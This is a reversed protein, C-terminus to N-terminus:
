ARALAELFPVVEAHSDYPIVVVRYDKRLREKRDVEAQPDPLRQLLVFHLGTAGRLQEANDALILDLDHPDSMGYGVFLFTRDILLYGLVSQYAADAHAERYEDFTLVVSDADEATGHVKFLVPRKTRIDALAAAARKGTYMDRAPPPEAAELLKDYNTTIVTPAQLAMIARQAAGPAADIPRFISTLAAAYDAGLKDKVQDLQRLMEQLPMARARERTPDTPDPELFRARLTERDRDDQWVWYRDCEALLRGPLDRWSPFGGTVDPGLSLGAGVFPVLLAARKAAVLPQPLSPHTASPMPVGPTTPTPLMPAAPATGATKLVDPLVPPGYQPRLVNTPLGTVAPPLIPFNLAPNQEGVTAVRHDWERLLTARLVARDRAVPQGLYISAYRVGDDLRGVQLAVLSFLWALSERQALRWAHPYSDLAAQALAPQRAGLASLAEHLALHLYRPADRRGAAAARAAAEWQGRRELQLVEGLRAQPRLDASTRVRGVCETLLADSADAAAIYQAEEILRVRSRSREVEYGEWLRRIAAEPRGADGLAGGLIQYVSFISKGPDVRKVAEEAAAIAADIGDVKRVLQVWLTWVNGSDFGEAARRVHPVARPLDEDRGRDRLLKALHYEAAPPGPKALWLSLLHIRADREATTAPDATALHYQSKLSASAASMLQELLKPDGAASLHYLAEEFRAAHGVTLQGGLLPRAYWAGARRHAEAWAAGDSRLRPLELERVLPYLVDRTHRILLLYRDRLSQRASRWDLGPDAMAEVLEVTAPQRVVALTTLWRRTEPSLGHVAKAVIRRELAEVLTPDRMALPDADVRPGLLDEVTYRDLLKGLLTLARPNSGLRVIVEQRRGVLPDGSGTLNAADLIAGAATVDDVPARLVADFCRERWARDDMARNALLVLWGRAGRLKVVGEMAKDLWEPPSGTGAQFQLQVDDLIVLVGGSLAATLAVKASPAEAVRQSLEAQGAGALAEALAAILSAQADSTDAPPTDVLVSPVGIAEAAARLAEALHATKGVGPFGMVLAAARREGRWARWIAAATERREAGDLLSWDPRPEVM